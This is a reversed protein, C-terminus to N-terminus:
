SGLHLICMSAYIELVVINMRRKKFDVKLIAVAAGRKRILVENAYHMLTDVDAEPNSKVISVVAQSSEYALEGSGLGDALVGIFYDEEVSVYFSDGCFINDNKATQFAHAQISDNQLYIM